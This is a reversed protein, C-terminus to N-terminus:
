FGVGVHYAGEYRLNDYSTGYNALTNLLFQADAETHVIAFQRDYLYVVYCSYM